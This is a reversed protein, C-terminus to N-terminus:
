ARLRMVYVVPKDLMDALMEPTTGLKQPSILETEIERFPHAEITFGLDEFFKRAQAEDEFLNANVDIGLDKSMQSTRDKAAEMMGRLTIDPTIWVGGFEKLLIAINKAYQTKQEFTLYRMLGENIVTVPKKDFHRAAYLLSESNLADGDELYLNQRDEIKKQAILSNHIQTKEKIIPPLDLEVYKSELDAETMALGRPSFGAAVELLQNTGYEALLKNVLKYRAEFFPTLEPAKMKELIAGDEPAGMAKLRELEDYIEQAYEIGVLARRFAVGYATPSIKFHSVDKIESSYEKPYEASM